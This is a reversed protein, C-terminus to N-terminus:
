QELTRPEKKCFPKAKAAAAVDGGIREAVACMRAPPLEVMGFPPAWSQVKRGLLTVVPGAYPRAADGAMELAYALDYISDRTSRDITRDGTDSLMREMWGSVVPLARPEGCAIAIRAAARGAQNDASMQEYAQSAFSRESACFEALVVRAEARRDPSSSDAIREGHFATRVMAEVIRRDRPGIQRALAIEPGTLFKRDFLGAAIAAEAVDDYLERPACPPPDDRGAAAPRTFHAVAAALLLSWQDEARFTKLMELALRNRRQEIETPQRCEQSLASAAPRSPGLSARVAERGPLPRFALPLLLALGAVVLGAIALKRNTM